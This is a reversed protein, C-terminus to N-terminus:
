KWFQWWKKAQQQKPPHTDAALKITDPLTKTKPKQAEYNKILLPYVEGSDHEDILFMFNPKCNLADFAGQENLEALTEHIALMGRTKYIEILQEYGYLDELVIDSYQEDLNEGDLAELPDFFNVTIGPCAYFETTFDHNFGMKFKDTEVQYDKWQGIGYALAEVGQQL